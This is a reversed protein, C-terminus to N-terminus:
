FRNSPNGVMQSGSIDLEQKPIPWVFRADEPGVSIESSTPITGEQPLRTFGERFRKLDYLRHGEMCLERIRENKIEQYLAAGTLSEIIAGRKQKVAQLDALAKDEQHAQYYAEARLLYIESLRFVKMMNVYRPVNETRNLNPNGPYKTFITAVLGSNYDTEKNAQFFTEYRIDGGSYLNILWAAPIYDPLLQRSGNLGCFIGGLSSVTEDTSTFEVKWIIENGRDYTWMDQYAERDLLSYIGGTSDILLSATRIAEEWNQMYVHIRTELALVAGKTFTIADAELKDIAHAQELDELVDRYYIDMTERKPTGKATSNWLPLALQQSARSPDYAESFMKVLEVRCFARAMCCEAKIQAWRALDKQTQERDEQSLLDSNLKEQLSTKVADMRELMFNVRFITSYYANWVSNGTSNQSNFTWNHMTAMTQQNGLVALMEDAQLESALTASGVIGSTNKFSSYVGILFKECDEITEIATEAPIQDQPQMDLFDQCGTFILLLASVMGINLLKM